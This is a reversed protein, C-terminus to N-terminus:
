SIETDLPYMPDGKKIAESFFHRQWEKGDDIGKGDFISRGGGNMMM